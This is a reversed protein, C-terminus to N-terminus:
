RSTWSSEHVKAGYPCDPKGCGTPRLASVYTGCRRCQAMEEAEIASARAGSRREGAKSGAARRRARSYFWVAAIILALLLLKSPSLEFM